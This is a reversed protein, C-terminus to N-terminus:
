DFLSPAVITSGEILLMRRKTEVGGTASFGIMKGNAGVVRHCPVIIPIPNMGMARGVAQAAGPQGVAAAIEGYTMTEGPGITRTLHYIQQHFTSCATLDVSIESLDISEGEFLATIAEAATKGPGELDGEVVDVKDAALSAAQRRLRSATAGDDAEPLQALLIDADNYGLGVPGLATEFLSIRISPDAM